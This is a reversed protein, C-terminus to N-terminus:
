AGPAEGSPDSVLVPSGGGGASASMRYKAGIYYAIAAFLFGVIWAIDAGGLATSIPGVYIAPDNMFPFEIGVTVAYVILAYWNLNGYKGNIKFLEPIDYNGRRILYYDTLNIATWPVLLYLTFVLFNSLDTMFNSSAKIAIITGIVALV